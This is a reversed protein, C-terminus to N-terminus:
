ILELKEIRVIWGDETSNRILRPYLDSPNKIDDFQVNVFHTTFFGMVTGKTKSPIVGVKKYKAVCDEKLRVRSGIEIKGEVPLDQWLLKM